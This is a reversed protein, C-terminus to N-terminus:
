ARAITSTGRGVNIVPMEVDTTAGCAPCFRAGPTLASPFGFLDFRQDYFNTTPPPNGGPEANDYDPDNPKDFRQVNPTTFQQATDHSAPHEFDSAVALAAGPILLAVVAAAIM